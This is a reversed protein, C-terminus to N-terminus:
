NFDGKIRKLFDAKILPRSAQSRPRTHRLTGCRLGGCGEESWGDWEIEGGRVGGSVWPASWPLFCIREGGHGGAEGGSGRGGAWPGAASGRPVGGCGADRTRGRGERWVWRGEERNRRETEAGIRRNGTRTRANRRHRGPCAPAGRLPRCPQRNRFRPAPTKKPLVPATPPSTDRSPLCPPHESGSGPPPGRDRAPTPEDPPTRDRQANTRNTKEYGGSADTAANLIAM